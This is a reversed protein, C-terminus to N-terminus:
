ALLLLLSLGSWAPSSYQSWCSINFLIVRLTSYRYLRRQPTLKWLHSERSSKSDAPLQSFFSAFKYLKTQVDYQCLVPMRAKKITGKQNGAPSHFHSALWTPNGHGAGVLPRLSAKQGTCPLLQTMFRTHTHGTKIKLFFVFWNRALCILYKLHM